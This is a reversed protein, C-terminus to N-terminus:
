GGGSAGSLKRRLYDIVANVQRANWDQGVAPMTLIGNRIVKALGARDQILSSGALKPGIGGQGALGHCKACVGVFTEKGLDVPSTHQRALWSEYAPRPMVEVYAKMLGHHIGCFEACTGEYVGVRRAQFWTHNTRGPIADMKGGLEPVWWSHAVDPTTIALTVVEDVPVRLRDVAVTGDPYVFRWYFQHGEVRIALQDGARAPPVDKIGPLKYFVFAAIAALLLVPVATWILELRTHGIIQPGEVERSRGRSRFRVIFVIRATEVLVFIAGTIGLILYYVDAIRDANPSRSAPPAFGGNGAAAAGALALGVALAFCALALRRRV